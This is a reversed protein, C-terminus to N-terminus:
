VANQFIYDESQLYEPVKKTILISGYMKITSVLTMSVMFFTTGM